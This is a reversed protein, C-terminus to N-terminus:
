EGSFQDSKQRFGGGLVGGFGRNKKEGGCWKERRQKSGFWRGVGEYWRPAAANGAVVM